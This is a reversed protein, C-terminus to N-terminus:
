SYDLPRIYERVHFGMLAFATVTISEPDVFKDKPIALIGLYTFNVTVLTLFATVLIIKVVRNHFWLAQIRIILLAIMVIM